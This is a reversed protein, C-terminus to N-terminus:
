FFVRVVIPKSDLDTRLIGIRQGILEDKLVKGLVESEKSDIPFALHGCGMRVMLWHGDRDLGLFIDVAEHWHRLYIQDSRTIEEREIEQQIEQRARLGVGHLIQLTKPLKKLNSLGKIASPLNIIREGESGSHDKRKWGVKM